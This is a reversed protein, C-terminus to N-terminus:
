RGKDYLLKVETTSLARNYIKVNSINGNFYRSYDGNYEYKGIYRILFSSYTATWVNNVHNGGERVGNVYFRYNTGGEDCIFVGQYWINDQIVTSGYRWYGPSVNWVALKSNILALWNANSVDSEASNFHQIRSADNTKFWYVATWGQNDPSIEVDEGLDIYNNSGDFNARDEGIIAGHNQGNNSYPTRDTMIESGVTETKTYTSTLPMDLVLGKTLSSSTIKTKYSDYLSRIESVSLAQNYIRVDSIDGDWFRSASFGNGIAVQPITTPWYINPSDFKSVGNLYGKINNESTDWVLVVHYWTNIQLAGSLYRHANYEGAENGVVASFNGDANEEFRIGENAGLYKTTFVNNYNEMKAPNMWFSITGKTYFSGLNGCDIYDDGGDFSMAGENKGMRDTTLTAGHIVGNNSNPTKDIIDGLGSLSPERYICAYYNAGWGWDEADPYVSLNPDSWGNNFWYGCSNQGADCHDGKLNPPLSCLAGDYISTAPTSIIPMALQGGTDPWNSLKLQHNMNWLYRKVVLWSDVDEVGEGAMGLGQSDCFSTFTAASTIGGPNAFVNLTWGGGDTTMDCYVNFSDEGGPGDPDIVYVGDGTSNGNDLIAKCSWPWASKISDGDLEWHGVLGKDSKMAIKPNFSDYLRKIEDESLARDYVRVEDIDGYFNENDYDRGISLYQTNSNFTSTCAATASLVGNIYVKKNDGDYTATIFSWENFPVTSYLTNLAGCSSSMSNTEFHIYQSPDNFTIAYQQSSGKSIISHWTSNHNQPKIWASMTVENSGNLNLNDSNPITIYNTYDFNMAGESVSHRDITLNAGNNTGNNGNPTLDTVKSTASDYSDGDLSWHGVLGTQLSGGIIKSDNDYVAYTAVATLLFMVIIVFEKSIKNKIKKGFM